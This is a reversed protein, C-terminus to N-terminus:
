TSWRMAWLWASAAASAATFVSGPGLLLEPVAAAASAAASSEAVHFLTDSTAWSPHPVSPGSVIRTEAMPGKSARFGASWDLVARTHTLRGDRATKAWSAWILDTM